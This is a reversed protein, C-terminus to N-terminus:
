AAFASAEFRAVLTAILVGRIWDIAAFALTTVQAETARGTDFEIAGAIRHDDERRIFRGRLEVAAVSQDAAVRVLVAQNTEFAAGVGVAGVAAIAVFAEARAWAPTVLIACSSGAAAAVTGARCVAAM